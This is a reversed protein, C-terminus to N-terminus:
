SRRLWRGRPAIMREEFIGTAFRRLNMPLGIKGRQPIQNEVFVVEGKTTSLFHLKKLEREFKSNEM